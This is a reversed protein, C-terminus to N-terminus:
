RTAILASISFRNPTAIHVVEVAPDALLAAFTPYTAPISLAAAVAAGKEPTSGLVGVVRHGLRRVAEIHVPGIFGTGAVAVGRTRM